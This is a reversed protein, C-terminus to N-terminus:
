AKKIVSPCIDQLKCNSCEPKIAKCVYRGHLVFWHHAKPLHKKPIIKLLKLEAKEPTKENHLALRYGVRFVHTDVALTPHRFLEGLVVNATKRGVGPLNELDKRNDPVKGGHMDQLKKALNFINKSKTNALGISKIKELIGEQGLLIIDKLDFGKQYLPKMCLNVRKDTTQASLVVSVLLQLPSNHYLECRPTPNEAKFIKIAKELLKFREKATIKKPSKRLSFSM